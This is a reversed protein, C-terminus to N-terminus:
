DTGGFDRCVAQVGIGVRNFLSELGIAMVANDHLFKRREVRAGISVVAIGRAVNHGNFVALGDAVRLVDARRKNLALVERDTHLLAAERAKRVCKALFVLM